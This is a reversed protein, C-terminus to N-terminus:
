DHRAESKPGFVPAALIGFFHASGRDGFRMRRRPTSLGDRSTPRSEGVEPRPGASGSWPAVSPRWNEPEGISSQHAARTPHNISLDPRIAMAGHITLFLDPTVERILRSCAAPRCSTREWAPVHSEANSPVSPGVTRQWGFAKKTEKRAKQEFRKRHRIRSPSVESRRAQAAVRLQSSRILAQRLVHIGRATAMRAIDATRIFRRIHNVM